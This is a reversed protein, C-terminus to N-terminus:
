LINLYISINIKKKQIKLDQNNSEIKLQELFNNESSYIYISLDKSNETRFDYTDLSFKYSEANLINFTKKFSKHKKNVIFSNSELYIIQFCGIGKSM